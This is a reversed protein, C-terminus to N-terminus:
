FATRIYRLIVKIIFYAVIVVVVLLAIAEPIKDAPPIIGWM